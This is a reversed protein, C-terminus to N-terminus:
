KFLQKSQYYSVGRVSLYRILNREQTKTIKYGSLFYLLYKEEKSMMLSNIYKQVAEKRTISYTGEILSIEQLNILMKADAFGSAILVELNTLDEGSQEKYAINYYSDILKKIIKEQRGDSLKQFLKNKIVKSLSKSLGSYAEIFKERDTTITEDISEITSPIQKVYSDTYGKSYLDFMLSNVDDSLEVIKNNYMQYYVWAKDSNNRDLADNIAEKNYLSKGESLIEWEYAEQPCITKMVMTVYTNINRTPIGTVMGLSYALSKLRSEINAEGNFAANTFEDWADSLQSLAGLNLDNMKVPNGDEAGFDLQFNNLFPIMGLINDNIFTQMINAITLEDDEDKERLFKVLINIASFMAASWLFGKVSDKYIKTQEKSIKKGNKKAFHKHMIYEVINSLNQSPQAQFMMMFNVVENESRLLESRDLTDFGQTEALAKDFLETAKTKNGNTEFMCARWLIRVMLSDMGSNGKSFWSAFNETADALTQGEIFTREMIRYQGSYSIDETKVGIGFTAFAKWLNKSSVYRKALPLATIQNAMVKLNAGLQFLAFNRRIKSLLSNSPKKMGQVGKLLNSYYEMANSRGTDKNIGFRNTMVARLTEGKYVGAKTDTEQVQYNFATNIMEVTDSYAYYKAMQAAYVQMIQEVNSIQLMGKLGEVSANWSYNRAGLMVNQMFDQEGIQM